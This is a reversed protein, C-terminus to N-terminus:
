PRPSRGSGSLPPEGHPGAPARSSRLLAACPGAPDLRFDGRAPMRLRPDAEVNGFSRFGGASQDVAGKRGGFICNGRVINGEGRPTGPPYYSEVDARLRSGAVVNGVVTTRSSTLGGQGSFIIGEGNGYIINGTITTGTANPYLQVGRDANAYIVNDAILTDDADAVYIGHHENTSPLRGCGHIRNRSLVTGHPHGYGTSGLLFCIGTHHNTVDNGDFTARSGNVTPSPLRAASRGDLGLYAVRVGVANRTIWFRGKVIAHEGPFSRLTVNRRTVKVDETFRGRRLCAVGGPRALALARRITRVPHRRSGTQQDRGSPAAVVDCRASSAARPVGSASPSSPITALLAVASM